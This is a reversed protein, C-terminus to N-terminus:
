GYFSFRSKENCIRRSSANPNDPICIDRIQEQLLFPAHVRDLFEYVGESFNVRMVPIDKMMIILNNGM